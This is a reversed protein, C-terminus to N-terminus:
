FITTRAVGSQGKLLGDWVTAVEHGMPNIMGMGTIVVRRRM